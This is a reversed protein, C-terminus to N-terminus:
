HVTLEVEHQQGDDFLDIYASGETDRHVSDSDRAAESHTGSYKANRVTIAYCAGGFRYRVKFGPWDEPICPRIFLRDGQRRLGVIWEIGAQYMWGAAGTYWTWGARGEHPVATYVDAAMAYPEGVYRLVENPTKTHAVPNLIHFLEVAKDGRGLLCWAIISWIVGHTYQGGNERIGPPYGQIYGPSPSSRDFPPDLLRAVSLKRDVLERDFAQMAQEAKETPAAGSIVSWSQAIADIRCETSRISGFWEAHDTFARRYWQGDWGHENAASSLGEWGKRYQETRELDGRARVYETFRGLVDCLFWAMWVSEGRGDAGIRSMGDNWDGIGILPLGHEGLKLLSRDMARLCHEYVTGSQESLVTTEYREHEEASLPESYLYPVQEDLIRDDGTHEIYRAVSYPLWLYDDSFQTRIGRGTEEHWWHQVDGEEYQHAAHLLIQAYTLDPRTHLLALSDQLQDRFGYAGGAQYFATRAWMRCGLSQYLLWGNLLVDMEPCPTSVTIQESIQEWQRTVRKFAEQCLGPNRYQKALQTASERSEECGLMVYITQEGGAEVPVEIQVAGCSDSCSGTTGSLRERYMAAPRELTGGRGIFERRDGTWSSAGSPSGDTGAASGPKTYLGLFSTAGRFHEEYTNRAQLTQTSEDWETVIFSANADRQVGMVWEAYYTFSLHRRDPSDNRVRIEVLKVSDETPVFVTAEHVVGNREHRFRTYGRAHSVTYAQNTSTGWPFLTWVEGSEEDRFYGIEGPPDLVPDNSWPTLKCERSNRWWTYGTGQESVLTGFKPNALVNIWPGPLPHTKKAQIVYQSGDPTFGGWGNFYLLHEGSDALPQISKSKAPVAPKRRADLPKPLVKRSRPVRIQAEMSRGNARMVLHAAALLLSQDEEPMTRSGLVFVGGAGGRRLVGDDVSRQLADQLDQLYGGESENLLVLDLVIGLRRLYEYGILLKVVFAMHELSAIRVVLIPRDGSIGYSWLGSQGKCNDTVARQQEDGLPSRYLLRGALRQFQAAEEATLHLHRLEIQSRTWSLQFGREISTSASVRKTMDLVADRSDGICTVAFLQAEGGPEIAVRQRMVFVPDAVAGVTGRLRSRMGQPQSRTFGRGIFEARDTEVEAPGMTPGGALLTHAAWLAREEDHRPRRRALLINEEEAYATEVFLKNFSPHAQDVGPPALVLEAYTTIEMIKTEHGTNTLTLRRIDANWEPSVSVELATRIDGDERLFTARDLGFQVKLGSAPVRCPQFGPSWVTGRATDHIYIFTGGDDQVADARWRTVATDGYRIFGGGSDTVVTTLTGNSFVGIEPMPKPGDAYVYERLPAAIQAVDQSPPYTRNLAPHRIIRPRTPIREQLLLEVSQIRKDQHFRDTMTRKLLMNSLTLMSMGQHHAMFSRIVKYRDGEPLRESTFDVAEFFGYAGRAGLEELRRLNDLGSRKALPLSMIAAYPAIVLHQELGRQFGLGPVGFARYQYNLMYDFAYYGSESIGYPVGRQGAYDIQRNVIGQCTNSWVTRPYTRMFLCPMLYEFMTGSWSLLAITRGIRTMTRGLKFWHEAPVQGLAIAIFSTQRSESAMLDYVIPDLRNLTADYGLSFLKARTDFLPAFDTQDVMAEIRAILRNGRSKIDSDVPEDILWEALGEKVAILSGIYNGSDVTSVYKPPLTELTTTEIWNFLHGNWKELRDVTDITRELRVVLGPTDIFGFDRAAIASALYLGINTPSTRHATGNPPDLQVNDPPLWHDQETVFDEFFRWIQEALKRLEGTESESLAEEQVRQPKNLWVILCPALAWVLVLIFGTWRPGPASQAAAAWLALATLLYGAKIGLLIQPRRGRNRLEVERSPVWELLQRKSVFLRYLTRGIADLLLVSQFPLVALMVLCQAATIGISSPNMWLQRFNLCQRIVPLLLTALVLLLWRGPHGPLIAMGLCLLAFLWPPLISRRLNDVVQWRTLASLDVPVAAGNRDRTGPLLWYLLQWDGRVWRHLRKQFASFVAPQDDLLVVDTLLGARMFGGELLDHSLVRNDPIRDCLVQAFVDVDFIGKGTFIGEGLGDQYCDSVAYAYPDIGPAGSWLDTLRTNCVSEYSSAIRPQLVGYGEVVRTRKENLRPRNYPLHLAAVMRRASGIPLQTDADLTILYRIRQLGEVDGIMEAFTTDERGRLLEVFEVLKGRKREWGMWVGESPNWQRRRQFCYFLNVGSRSYKDNLAQISRKAEAAVAEDGTHHEESADTFDGLLAFQLNADRNALYHLELRDALEHVEEATSWIVPVIVMTAADDPIGSSFEYRLLPIPKKRCEIWWHSATVAWESAPLLLAAVLALWELPMHVTGSGIWWAFVFLALVFCGLLPVFYAASGRTGLSPLPYRRAERCMALAQQLRNLGAAELLYYAAYERRTRQEAGNAEIAQEAQHAALEVAQEAVRRESVHYRRALQEVRKRLLDRSVDDMQPYLGSREESLVREVVSTRGFLGHWNLREMNRLSVILNGTQVQYAAQLQYEYSQIHELSDTGNDLKCKLWERVAASDDEWERLHSVLHVILPGSLPMDEGARDLAASLASPDSQFPKLQSLLRDVSLCVERRERVHEVIDALRCLLAIRCFLPLTWVEALTLVSVDQYSNLFDVLSDEEVLGDTQALYEKCLFLVRPLQTKRLQPLRRLLHKGLQDKVVLSQEQLFGAHDLLWEEAPQTCLTGREQLAYIFRNIREADEQFERLFQKSPRRSVHSDDTLALEHAKQRLTEDILTM